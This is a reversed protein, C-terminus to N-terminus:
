CEEVCLTLSVSFHDHRNGARLKELQEKVEAPFSGRSQWSKHMERLLALKMPLIYFIYFDKANDTPFVMEGFWLLM